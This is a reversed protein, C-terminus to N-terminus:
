RSFSASGTEALRKRLLLYIIVVMAYNLLGFMIAAITLEPMQLVSAGLYIALIINQAGVEVAITFQRVLDLGFLRALVFGAAWVLIVMGSAAWFLDAIENTFFSRSNYISLAIMIAILPLSIRRMPEIAKLSWASAFRRLAMGLTVPLVIAHFLSLLLQAIPLEVTNLETGLSALGLSLFVPITALTILSSLATLTVSLAIDGRRAFVITNSTTGGPCVSVIFLGLAVAGTWPGVSAWIFGILPLLLIQGAIGTLLPKPDSFTEKIRATDLAMGLAFMVFFMIM